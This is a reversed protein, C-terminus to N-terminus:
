PFHILVGRFLTMDEPLKLYVMDKDLWRESYEKPRGRGRRTGVIDSRECRSM